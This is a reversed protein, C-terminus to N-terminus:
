TAMVKYGAQVIAEQVAIPLVQTEVDLTKAGLDAQVKATPDVSIIAKTIIEVCGGCVMEPVQLKM